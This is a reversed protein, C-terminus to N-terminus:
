MVVIRAPQMGLRVETKFQRLLEPNVQIHHLVSPSLLLNVEVLNFVSNEIWEKPTVKSKDQPLVLLRVRGRAGQVYIGSLARWLIMGEDLRGKRRLERAVSNAHEYLTVRLASVYIQQLRDELTVYDFKAPDMAHAQALLRWAKTVDDPHMAGSYVVTKGPPAPIRQRIDPHKQLLQLIEKLGPELHFTSM